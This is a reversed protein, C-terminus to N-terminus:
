KTTKTKDDPEPAPTKDVEHVVLMRENKLATIQEESFKSVHHDVAYDPHAIGARRFGHVKATIRLHTTPM